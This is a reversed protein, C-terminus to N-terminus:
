RFVHLSVEAHSSVAPKCDLESALVKRTIGLETSANHSLYAMISHFVEAWAYERCKCVPLYQCRLASTFPLSTRENLLRNTTSSLILDLPHKLVTQRYSCCGAKAM